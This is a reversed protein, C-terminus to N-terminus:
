SFRGFEDLDTRNVEEQRSLMWYALGLIDYNILFGFNNEQILQDILVDFGPAPLTLDKSVGWSGPPTWTACPIDSNSQLFITPKSSLTIHKEFGNLRIEIHDGMSILDFSHGYREKLILELWSLISKSYTNM